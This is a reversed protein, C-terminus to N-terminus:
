LGLPSELCLSCLELILGSPDLGCLSLAVSRNNLALMNVVVDVLCVLGDDVLLGYLRVDHVGSDWNVLCMVILSLVVSGGSQGSDAHGLELLVASRMSAALVLLVSELATGVDLSTSVAVVLADLVNHVRIAVTGSTCGARSAFALKARVAGLDSICSIRTDVGVTVVAGRGSLLVETRLITGLRGSSTGCIGREVLVMGTLVRSLANIVVLRTVLM